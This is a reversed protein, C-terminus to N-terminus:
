PLTGGMQKAIRTATSHGMYVTECYVCRPLLIDSPIASQFISGNAQRMVIFNDKSPLLEVQAGCEGCVFPLFIDEMIPELDRLTDPPAPEVYPYDHTQVDVWDTFFNQLVLRIVLEGDPRTYISCGDYPESYKADLGMSLYFAQAELALSREGALLNRAALFYGHRFATM